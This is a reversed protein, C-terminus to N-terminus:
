KGPKKGNRGGSLLAGKKQLTSYVPPDKKLRTPLLIHATPGGRLALRYKHTGGGGGVWRWKSDGSKSKRRGRRKKYLIKSKHCLSPPPAHLPPRTSATFHSFFDGLFSVKARPVSLEGKKGIFFTKKRQNLIM